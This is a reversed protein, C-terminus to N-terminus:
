GIFKLTQLSKEMTQGDEPKTYTMVFQLIKDGAKRLYIAQYLVVGPVVAKKMKISYFAKGGLTTSQAPATITYGFEKAFAQETALASEAITAQPTQNVEVACIMSANDPTGPPYKALSLLIQTLEVSKALEREGKATPKVIKKGGEVYLMSDESSIETWGSPKELSFKYFYNRYVNKESATQANIIAGCMLTLIFIGIARKM